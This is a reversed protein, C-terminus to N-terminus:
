QTSILGRRFERPSSGLHRQFFRTLHPPASFGLDESLTKIDKTGDVLQEIAKELRLANAYVRPSVGMSERFLEFFRSRSLGALRICTEGDLPESPKEHLHLLVRRIRFDLMRHPPKKAASMCFREKLQSFFAGVDSEGLTSALMGEGIRVAMDRLDPLLAQCSHEFVRGPLAGIAGGAGVEDVNIYLALLRTTESAEISIGAHLVWPDVFVVTDDRLPLVHGNVLFFADPGDFKFIVHAHPHAHETIPGDLPLLAIRGARGFAIRPTSQRM